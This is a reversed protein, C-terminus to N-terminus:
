DKNIKEVLHNPLEYRVGIDVVNNSLILEPYNGTTKKILSHGSRGVAIVVYDFDYDGDSAMVKVTKGGTVIEDVKCDFHFEINERM